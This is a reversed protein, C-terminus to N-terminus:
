DGPHRGAAEPRLLGLAKRTAASLPLQACRRLPVWQYGQPARPVAARMVRIRYLHRTVAHRFEGLPELLRAEPLEAAEPLDWLGTLRMGRNPRFLVRGDREVVLLVKRTPIPAARRVSIPIEEVLGLRRARCDTVVPCAGCRPNRPLCVTAGLEMVAQNFAGPDRRDLLKAALEELRSRVATRKLPESVAALRSLVRRANGDLVPHPQGFAISAVAAATYAGVGPLARWGHYDQPFGGAAVIRRAAEHLAHARRYYGLGSWRALVAQRSAAALAEVTPFAGLFRRYYPEVAAVRTQQLMIEAVWIRYPDATERWPLARANARYWDLLM